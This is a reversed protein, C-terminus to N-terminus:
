PTSPTDSTDGNYLGGLRLILRPPASADVNSVSWLAGQWKVYRIAFFHEYAYADAVISISTNVTLDSNVKEGSDLGRANKQVDGYYMKKTIQEEWIGAGKKVTEAYGVEGYFRAM